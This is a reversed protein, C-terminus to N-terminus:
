ILTPINMSVAIKQETKHSVRNKAKMWEYCLSFLDRPIFPVFIPGIPEYLIYDYQINKGRIEVQNLKQM